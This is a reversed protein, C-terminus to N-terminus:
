RAPYRMRGLLRTFSFREDPKRLLQAKTKEFRIIGEIRRDLFAHTEAKHESSDHAFVNLTAAYIGALIARKTYHNYDTATDGALRWMADASGWGLRAAAALNQPMAMIALARALAEERGTVADLRAMVLRRIRERIPVGALSEAPEAKAMQADVHHIWATIMAMPGDRFAFAALDADVGAMSAAQAVAERTWGDFVAADAIAPALQLRLAELTAPDEM